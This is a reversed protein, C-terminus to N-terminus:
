RRYRGSLLLRASEDVGGQHRRGEADGVEQQRVRRLLFSSGTAANGGPIFWVGSGVFRILEIEDFRRRQWDNYSIDTRARVWWTHSTAPITRASISRSRRTRWGASRGPAPGLGRIPARITWACKM